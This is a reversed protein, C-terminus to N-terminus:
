VIYQKMTKVYRNGVIDIQDKTLGFGNDVVQVRYFTNNHDIFNQTVIGANQPGARCLFFFIM